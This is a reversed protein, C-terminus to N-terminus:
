DDTMANIAYVVKVASLQATGSFTDSGNTGVRAARCFIEDNEAPTGGITIASTAASIMLDGTATLADTVTQATGLATDIADDDSRALCALSWVVNGSGSAATWYFQATITGEDWGKPMAIQFWGFEDAATSTYGCIKQNIKNTTSELNAPTCGATTAPLISGGSISITKSGSFAALLGAPTVTRATDSGAETEASTALESVGVVTTSGAPIYGSVNNPSSADKQWLVNAGSVAAPTADDFDADAVAGGNVTISDGGAAGSDATCTFVGLASIASVKDTGGCTIPIAAVSNATAPIVMKVDSTPDVVQIRMENTDATDGECVIFGDSTANNTFRCQDASLAPDAGADSFDLAITPTGGETSSSGSIGLGATITAVYNGATHTALTILDNLSSAGTGGDAVAVDTGGARYLGNGEISCNGGTCTLTNTTGGDFEILGGSALFLDAWATGSVGLANGDNAGPSLNTSNLTAETANDVSLNIASSATANDPDAAITISDSAAVHTITARSSTTGIDIVGGDAMFLDAWRLPTSTEGLANGDNVGPSFATATLKTEDTGGIDVTFIGSATEIAPDTAGADFIIGTASGAGLTFTNLETLDLDLTGSNNDIGSGGTLNTYDGADPVDDDTGASFANTTVDYQLKQAAGDSDPISGWAGASTSTSVFVQDDSAPAGLFFLVGSGIEDTMASRLNASSTTTLWTRFASSLDALAATGSGTFYPLKDAASTLGGIALTEVDSVAVTASGNAGGDTLSLLAGVALARESSLSGTNGITVYANSASATGTGLNTVIRFHDDAGGSYRALYITTSQLDGSSLASGAASVIAKGGLSNVNLTVTSTNTVAPKFQFLQGDVYATLAFPTASATVTNTGSVSGLLIVGRQNANAMEENVDPCVTTQWNTSIAYSGGSCPTAGSATAHALRAMQLSALLLFFLSVVVLTARLLRNM